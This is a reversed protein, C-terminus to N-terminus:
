RPTEQDGVRVQEALYELLDAVDYRSWEPQQWRAGSPAPLERIHHALRQLVDRDGVPSSARRLVDIARAWGCECPRHHGECELLAASIEDLM